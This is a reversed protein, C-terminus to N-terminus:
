DLKLINKFRLRSNAVDNIIRVPIEKNMEKTKRAKDQLNKQIIESKESNQNKREANNRKPNIPQRLPNFFKKKLPYSDGM